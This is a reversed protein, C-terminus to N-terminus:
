RCCVTSRGTCTFARRVRSPLVMRLRQQTSAEAAVPHVQPPSSLTLTRDSILRLLAAVLVCEVEREVAQAGPADARGFGLFWRHTWASNNRVDGEHTERGESAGDDVWSDDEPDEKAVTEAEGEVSAPSDVQLLSTTWELERAWDADTLLAAFHTLVFQRYAWTHYNKSDPLLSRSIFALEGAITSLSIPPPLHTLLLLRHHRYEFLRWDTLM